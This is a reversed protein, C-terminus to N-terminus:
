QKRPAKVKRLETSVTVEPRFCCVCCDFPLFSNLLDACVNFDVAYNVFVIPFLNNEHLTACIFSSVIIWFNSLLTSANSFLVASCSVWYATILVFSVAIRHPMPTIAVATIPTNTLNTNLKQFPIIIVTSNQFAAPMLAKRVIQWVATAVIPVDATSDSILQIATPLADSSAPIRDMSVDMAVPKGSTYFRPITTQPTFVVSVPSFRANKTYFGSFLSFDLSKIFVRIKYCDVSLSCLKGFYLPFTISEMHNM